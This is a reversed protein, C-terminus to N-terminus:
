ASRSPVGPYSRSFPSNYINRSKKVYLATDRVGNDSETIYRTLRPTREVIDIGDPSSYMEQSYNVEGGEQKKNVKANTQHNYLNKLTEFRNRCTNFADPASM